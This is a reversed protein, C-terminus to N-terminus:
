NFLESYSQPDINEKSKEVEYDYDYNNILPIIEDKKTKFFDFIKEM